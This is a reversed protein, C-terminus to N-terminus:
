GATRKRELFRARLNRSAVNDKRVDGARKRTAVFDGREVVKAGFVNGDPFEGVLYVRRFGLAGQAEEGELLAYVSARAWKRSPLDLAWLDRKSGADKLRVVAM